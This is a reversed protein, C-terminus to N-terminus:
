SGSWPDFGPGRHESCLTKDVPAGPFERNIPKKSTSWESQYSTYRMTTKIQMERIILSVSCRKMHKNAM